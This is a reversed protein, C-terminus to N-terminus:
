QPAIRQSFGPGEFAATNPDLKAATGTALLAADLPAAGGRTSGDGAQHIGILAARNQDGVVFVPAGSDGERTPIDYMVMGNEDAMRVGCRVGSVAGDICVFSGVPVLQQVGKATLVGAVPWTGAIKTAGAATQETEIVAADVPGAVASATGLLRPDGVESGMLYQEASYGTACHGATLYGGKVAPGLTCPVTEGAGSGTAHLIELGPLPDAGFQARYRTADRPTNDGQGTVNEWVFRTTEGAPAAAVLSPTSQGDTAPTAEGGTAPSCASVAAAALVAATILVHRSNMGIVTGHVAPM